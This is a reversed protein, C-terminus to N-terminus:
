QAGKMPWKGHPASADLFLQSVRLDPSLQRLGEILTEGAELVAAVPMPALRELVFWMETSDLTIRTRLGQRWNWRRCTVGLDDRWVVEGSDLAENRPQGEAMTDFTEGGSTVVLHPAGEYAAADEGGIPIAYRLSLANYLDVVANLPQMQGDRQARKRLAEASCPFRQPKIGFARYAERWSDLHPEAWSAQDLSACANRLMNTCRDDSAHNRAGQVFISLAAFDPRVTFIEAAISPHIAM